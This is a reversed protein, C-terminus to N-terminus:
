SSFAINKRNKDYAQQLGGVSPHDGENEVHGGFSAFRVNRILLNGFYFFEVTAVGFEHDKGEGGVFKKLFLTNVFVNAFKQLCVEGLRCKWYHPKRPM